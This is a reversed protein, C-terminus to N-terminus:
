QSSRGPTDRPLEDEDEHEDAADLRPREIRSAPSAELAVAEDTLLRPGAPLDEERRRLMRNVARSVLTDVGATQSRAADLAESAFGSTSRAVISGMATEEVVADIDVRQVVENVDIRGVLADIDIRHMLAEIDIRRVLADIDIRRVLTNIDIRQVLQDIDIRQVLADIDIRQVLRDIDIRQVLLDIDIRQVLDDIDIQRVLEDIDIQQVLTDIDIRQVLQDIDLTEIVGPVFTEILRRTDAEASSRARLRVERGNDVLPRTAASLLRGAVGAGPLASVVRGVAVGADWGRAGAEVAVHTAQSAAGVVLDTALVLASPIGSGMDETNRAVIDTGPKRQQPNQESM